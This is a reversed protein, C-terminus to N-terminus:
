GLQKEISHAIWDAFISNSILRLNTAAFAAILYRISEDRSLGRASMYFLSDEDLQGVTAGHSCLVDDAYIELQPKTDIEANKSLLINKNQQLAETHQADKFVVVKGNFVARSQGQLVGKYDQSSQCDPVRHNVTTHHDIHQNNTPMYVGNLLCRAFPEQLNFISDSRVLKGGFSFSHSEVVSASQQQVGLYGIHTAQTGECQFKYHTVTAGSGAHIETITNTCYNSQEFGQYLEVVSIASNEEAVILNRNYVVQSDKDQWYQVVIPDLVEIGAPIFVFLGHHLMALNLAQLGNDSVLIKGLYSEIKEPHEVLAQHMPQIIIRPDLQSTVDGLNAIVGNNIFLTLNDAFVPARTNSASNEPPSYQQQCFPTLNTYKWDENHKSPFGVKTFYELADNQLAALWPESRVRVHSRYFEILEKM